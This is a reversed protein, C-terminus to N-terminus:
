TPINKKAIGQGNYLGLRMEFRSKLLGNRHKWEWNESGNEDRTKKSIGPMEIHKEWKNEGLFSV